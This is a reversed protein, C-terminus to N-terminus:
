MSSGHGACGKDGAGRAPEAQSQGGRERPPAPVHDGVGAVGSSEGFCERIERVDGRNGAVHGIERVPFPQRRM